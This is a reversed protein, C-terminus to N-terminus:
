KVLKLDEYPITTIELRNIIKGDEQILLKNIKILGMAELSRNIDRIVQENKGSKSSLGIRNLISRITISCPKKYFDNFGRYVFYVKLANSSLSRSLIRLLKEEVFIFREFGSPVLYCIQGYKDEIKKILGCEVLYKFNKSVTNRSFGNQESWKKFSIDKEYLYRHTENDVSNRYSECQVLSYTKYDIKKNNLIHFDM